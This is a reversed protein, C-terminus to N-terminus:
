HEDSPSMDVEALLRLDDARASGESLALLRKVEFIQGRIKLTTDQSNGVSDNLERLEQLRLQLDQTFRRWVPSRLDDLTM